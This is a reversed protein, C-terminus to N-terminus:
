AEGKNKCRCTDIGLLVYPTCHKTLSTFVGAFAIIALVWRVNGEAMDMALAVMALTGFLARFFLDLGGVNKETFLEVIDM